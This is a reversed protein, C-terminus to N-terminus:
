PLLTASITFSGADQALFGDVSVFVTRDTSGSNRYELTEVGGNGPGDKYGLCSAAAQACDGFSALVLDWTSAPQASVSLLKGAPITVSFVLDRGVSGVRCTNPLNPSELDNGFAATNYTAQPAGPTLPIATSCWDGALEGDDRNILYMRESGVQQYAPDSSATVAVTVDYTRDGDHITDDQGCLQILEGSEFNGADFHV